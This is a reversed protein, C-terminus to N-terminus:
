LPILSGSSLKFYITASCSSYVAGENDSKLGGTFLLFNLFDGSLESVESSLEASSPSLSSSFSSTSSTVTVVGLGEM